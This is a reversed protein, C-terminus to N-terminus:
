SGPYSSSSDPGDWLPPRPCYPGGRGGDLGVDDRVPPKGTAKRAKM